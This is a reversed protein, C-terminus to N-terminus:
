RRDRRVGKDEAYVQGEGCYSARSPSRKSPRRESPELRDEMTWGQRFRVPVRAEIAASHNRKTREGKSAM